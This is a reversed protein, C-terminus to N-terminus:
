QLPGHIICTRATDQERKHRALACSSLYESHYKSPRNLATELGRFACGAETSPAFDHEFYGHSHTNRVRHLPRARVEFQVM